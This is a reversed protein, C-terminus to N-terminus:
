EDKGFAQDRARRLVRILRNVHTRSVIDVFFAKDETGDPNDHVTGVSIDCRDQGWQVHIHKGPSESTGPDEVYIRETPM